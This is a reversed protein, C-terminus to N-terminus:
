VEEEAIVPSYLSCMPHLCLTHFLFFISVRILLLLSLTKCVIDLLLAFSFAYALFRDDLVVVVVVDLSPHISFVYASFLLFFFFLGIGALSPAPPASASFLAFKSCFHSPFPAPKNNELKQTSGGSSCWHRSSSFLFFLFLFFFFLFHKAIGGRWKGCGTFSRVIV